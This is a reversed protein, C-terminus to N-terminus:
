NESEVTKLLKDLEKVERLLDAMQENGAERMAAALPAKKIKVYYDILRVQLRAAEYRLESLELDQYLEEYLLVLIDVYDGSGKTIKAKDAKFETEPNKQLYALLEQGREEPLM